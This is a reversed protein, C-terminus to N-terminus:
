VFKSYILSFNSSNNDRLENLATFYLQFKAEFKYKQSYVGLYVDFIEAQM